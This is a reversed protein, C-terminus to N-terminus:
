KEEREGGGGKGGSQWSDLPHPPSPPPLTTTLSSTPFPLLFSGLMTHVYSYYFLLFKLFLFLFSHLVKRIHFPREYIRVIVYLHLSLYNPGDISFM